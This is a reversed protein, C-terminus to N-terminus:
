HHVYLRTIVHSRIQYTCSLVTINFNRERELSKKSPESFCEDSYIKWQYWEILKSCKWDIDNLWEIFNISIQKMVQGYFNIMIIDTMSEWRSM